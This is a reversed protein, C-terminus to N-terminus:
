KDHQEPAIDFPLYKHSRNNGMPGLIHADLFPGLFRRSRSFHPKTQDPASNAAAIQMIVIVSAEARHPKTLRHHQAMLDRGDDFFQALADFPQLDATQHGNRRGAGASGAAEALFAQVVLAEVHAKIAAGHRERMNLTSETLNQHRVGQLAHRGIAQAGALGGHGLRERHRQM